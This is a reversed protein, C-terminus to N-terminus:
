KTSKFVLSLCLPARCLNNANTTDTWTTLQQFIVMETVCSKDNNTVWRLRDFLVIAVIVSIMTFKGIRTICHNDHCCATDRKSSYVCRLHYIATPKGAITRAMTDRSRFSWCVASNDASTFPALCYRVFDRRFNNRWIETNFYRYLWAAKDEVNQM